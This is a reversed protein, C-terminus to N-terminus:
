IAGTDRQKQLQDQGNATVDIGLSEPHVRNGPVAETITWCHCGVKLAPFHTTQASVSVGRQQPSMSTSVQLGSAM